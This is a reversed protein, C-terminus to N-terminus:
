HGPIEPPIIQKMLHYDTSTNADPVSTDDEAEQAIMSGFVYENVPTSEASSVNDEQRFVM